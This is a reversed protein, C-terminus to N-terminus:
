LSYDGTSSGGEAKGGCVAVVLLLVAVCMYMVSSRSSGSLRAQRTNQTLFLLLLSVVINILM